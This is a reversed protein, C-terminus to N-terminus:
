AERRAGEIQNIAMERSYAFGSDPAIWFSNDDRDRQKWGAALLTADETSHVPTTASTSSTSRKESVKHVRPKEDRLNQNKLRSDDVTSDEDLTKDAFAMSETPQGNQSSPRGLQGDDGTEPANRTGNGPNEPGPHDVKLGIGFWGKRAKHPGSTITENVFGRERLRMGFM